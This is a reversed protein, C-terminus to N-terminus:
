TKRFAQRRPNPNPRAVAVRLGISGENDLVVIWHFEKEVDVWDLIESQRRMGKLPGERGKEVNGMKGMSTRALTVRSLAIM